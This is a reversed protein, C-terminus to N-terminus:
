VETMGLPVNVWQNKDDKKEARVYQKSLAPRYSDEIIKVGDIFEANGSEDAMKRLQMVRSAKLTGTKQNKSLLRLIASVLMKSDSDKALSEIFQQVKAIGDNVTDDYSDIEYYGLIIRRRGDQTTFTHSRQGDKVGYADAKLDIAQDFQRYINEKKAALLDSLEEIDPFVANITEDVLTKYSERNEMARAQQEKRAQEAKFAEFQAREQPTMTMQVTEKEM